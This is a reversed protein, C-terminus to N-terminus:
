RVVNPLNPDQYINSHSLGLNASYTIMEVRADTNYKEKAQLAIQYLQLHFFHLTTWVPPLM